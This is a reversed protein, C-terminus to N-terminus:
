NNNNKEPQNAFPKTKVLTDTRARRTRHTSVNNEPATGESKELQEQFKVEDVSLEYRKTVSNLNQM